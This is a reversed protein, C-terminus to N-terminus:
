LEKVWSLNSPVTGAPKQETYAETSKHVDYYFHAALGFEAAQHIEPTRIQIESIRGDEGFVTTHLRQYGNPKPVAIYDKIRYILPKYHQHLGGLAQYCSVVDPVILRVAM